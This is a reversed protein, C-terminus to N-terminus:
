IYKLIQQFERKFSYKDMKQFSLQKLKEIFASSYTKNIELSTIYGQINGDEYMKCVEDIYIRNPLDNPEKVMKLTEINKYIM